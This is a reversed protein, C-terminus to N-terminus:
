RRQARLTVVLSSEASGSPAIQAEGTWAAGSEDAFSWRYDTSNDSAPGARFEPQHGFAARIAADVAPLSPHNTVLLRDEWRTRDGQRELFRTQLGTPHFPLFRDALAARAYSNDPHWDYEIQLAVAQAEGRGELQEVLHLAGDLGSSLGATTVVKGNDVYRRDSVVHALPVQAALAGIAGHFTTVTLGDLLGAHAAIFAGTCVTLVHDAQAARTRVWGSLAPDACLEPSTNGGPIVLIDAAPSDQFTYDPTVKEGFVTVIPAPHAAVTFVRYGAQGFVEWPGSYDIIQVGDYLLIAVAHSQPLTSKAVLPMGCHPCVGPRDFEVRDCDSGCPSCVYTEAAPAAALRTPVSTLGLLATVVSPLLILLPRLTM